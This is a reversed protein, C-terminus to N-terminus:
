ADAPAGSGFDLLDQVVFTRRESRIRYHRPQLQRLYLTQQVKQQYEQAESPWISTAIALARSSLKQRMSTTRRSARNPWTTPTSITLSLSM